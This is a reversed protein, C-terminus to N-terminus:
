DGNWYIVMSYNPTDWTIEDYFYSLWNYLHNTTTKLDRSYPRPTDSCNQTIWKNVAGFRASGSKRIFGALSIIFSNNKFNKRLIAFFDPESLGGPMSFLMLDHIFEPTDELGGNSSLENSYFQYLQTPDKSAPLSVWSFEKQAVPTLILPPPSEIPRKNDTVYKLAQEYMQDDIEESTALLGLLNRWDGDELTVPCGIEVNSHPALGLGKKTINGSTHFALSRNYVLLKLHISTHRFLAIDKGQLYPYIEVDSVGATLDGALWRVVVQLQSTDKCEDILERLADVKIFPSVILRLKGENALTQRVFEM